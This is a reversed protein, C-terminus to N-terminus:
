IRRRLLSWMMYVLESKLENTTIISNKESIASRIIGTLSRTIIFLQTSNPIILSPHNIKHLCTLLRESAVKNAAIIVEPRDITNHLRVAVRVFVSNNNVLDMLGDIYNGILDVPDINQVNEIAEVESFFKEVHEKLFDAGMQCLVDIISNKNKFYQYLAGQSFGSKSSIKNVTLSDLGENEIIQASAECITNVALKSKPHLIKKRFM